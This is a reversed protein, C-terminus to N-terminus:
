ISMVQMFLECHTTYIKLMAAEGIREKGNRLSNAASNTIWRILLFLYVICYTLLDSLAKLIFAFLQYRFTSKLNSCHGCILKVVQKLRWEAFWSACLRYIKRKSTVKNSQTEYMKMTGAPVRWSGQSFNKRAKEETKLCIDPYFVCLRPV